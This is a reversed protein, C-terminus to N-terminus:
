LFSRVADRLKRMSSRFRGISGLTALSIESPRPTEKNWFKIEKGSSFTRGSPGDKSLSALYIACPVADEPKGQGRPNMDTRLSGPYHVNIKIDYALNEVALARTMSNVAGKSASYAALGAVPEYEAGSGMNQIRGYNQAIMHRLVAQNCLFVGTLNIDLHRKWDSLSTEIAPKVPQIVAANAVLIDIRGYENITASVLRNVDEEQSVDCGLAIARGGADRVEKAVSEVRTEDRACLILSAGEHAFAVAIARGIGKSAGTIIATRGKLRSASMM